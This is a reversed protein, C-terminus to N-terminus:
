PTMIGLEKVMTRESVKPYEGQGGTDTRLVPVWIILWLFKEQFFPTLQSLFGLTEDGYCKLQVIYPNVQMDTKTSLGSDLLQSKRVKETM